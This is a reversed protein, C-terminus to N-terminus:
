RVKDSAASDRSQKRILFYLLSLLAIVTLAGGVRLTGIVAWTYKGKTPDFRFCYLMLHDLASGVAGKSAEVVALRVDFSSFEIGTFFQSIRGEPTVVMVGASHAFDEGDPEFGFGVQKMVAAVPAEAGVLFHWGPEGSVPKRDTLQQFFKEATELAMQPTEKPNFSIAAVSYDTGLVLGTEKLVQVLGDLVLGCLRPCKYYVPAIILPRGPATLEDLRREKGVQDRFLLSLDVQGGLQTFIGVKTGLVQNPQELALVRVPILLLCILPLWLGSLRMQLGYVKSGAGFMQMVLRNVSGNCCSKVLLLLQM